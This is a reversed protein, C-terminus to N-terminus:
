DHKLRYGVGRVSEIMYGLSGLSQRLRKIQTDVTRETVDAFGGWVADLLHQRTFSKNPYKAFYSLLRFELATLVREEERVTVSHRDLNIVLDGLLMRDDHLQGRRLVVKIRALLEKPSFPKVVYDDVGADFGLLKNEEEARATLVIIPIHKTLPDAKLRKTIDMGSSTPLMWDLLILDPLEQHIMVFAQAADDAEKVSFGEPVLLFRIMERISAEDDVILIRRM